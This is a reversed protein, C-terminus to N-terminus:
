KGRRNRGAEEACIDSEGVVYEVSWWEVVDLHWDFPGRLCVGLYIRETIGGIKLLRM